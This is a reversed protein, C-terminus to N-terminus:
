SSSFDDNTSTTQRFLLSKLEEPNRLIAHRSTTERKQSTSAQKSASITSPQRLHRSWVIQDLTVGISPRVIQSDPISRSNASYDIHGSTPSFIYDVPALSLWPSDQDKSTTSNLKWTVHMSSVVEENPPTSSCSKSGPTNSLGEAACQQTSAFTSTTAPADSLM